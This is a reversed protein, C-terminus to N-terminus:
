TVGTESFLRGKYWAGSLMGTTKKAAEPRLM